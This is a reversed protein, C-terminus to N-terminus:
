RDRGYGGDALGALREFVNGAARDGTCLMSWGMAALYLPLFLPGLVAWQTSHRAEHEIGKPLRHVFDTFRDGSIVVNGITFAGAAPFPLRYRQALLLGHPGRLIRARGLRAVLLGVATSGNALNVAQRGDM